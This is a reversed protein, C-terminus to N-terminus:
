RPAPAAGKKERKLRECGQTRVSGNASLGVKIRHPEGAESPPPTFKCRFSPETEPWAPYVSLVHEQDATLENTAFPIDGKALGDDLDVHLAPTKLDMPLVEVATFAAEPHRQLVVSDMNYVKGSIGSVSVVHAIYGDRAIKLRHQGPNLPLKVPTDVYAGGELREGDLTLRVASPETQLAILMPPRAALKFRGVSTIVAAAWVGAAALALAQRRRTRHRAADTM